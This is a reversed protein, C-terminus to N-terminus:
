LYKSDSELITISQSDVLIRVRPHSNADIEVLVDEPKGEIVTDDVAMLIVDRLPAGSNLIVNMPTLVFDSLGARHFYFGVRDLHLATM